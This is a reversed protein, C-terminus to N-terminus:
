HAFNCTVAHLDFCRFEPALRPANMGPWCSVHGATAHSCMATMLGSMHAHDDADVKEKAWRNRDRMETRVYKACHCMQRSPDMM